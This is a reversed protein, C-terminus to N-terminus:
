DGSAAGETWVANMELWIRPEEEDQSYFVVLTNWEEDMFEGSGASEIGRAAAADWDDGVTVGYLRWPNERGTLTIRRIRTNEIPGSGAYDGEFSVRANRLIVVGDKLDASLVEPFDALAEMTGGLYGSLEAPDSRNAYPVLSLEVYSLEDTGLHNLNLHCGEPTLFVNSFVSEELGQEEALARAEEMEMDATIGLLSSGKEGSCTIRTIVNQEPLATEKVPGAFTLDEDEYYIYSYM